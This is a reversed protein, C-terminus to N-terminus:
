MFKANRAVTMKGGGSAELKMKKHKVHGSAKVKGSLSLSTVWGTALDVVAPGTLDLKFTMDGNKLDGKLTVDLDAQKRQDGHIGKLTATVKTENEDIGPLEGILARRAEADPSLTAGPKKGQLLKALPSPSGVYGYEAMVADREKDPAPKGGRTVEPSSGQAEIEYTKNETVSPHELGLLPKADRRGFMLQLKTIADGKVAQAEETREEDISWRGSQIGASAGKHSLTLDFKMKVSRKELARTGVTPKPFSAAPAASGGAEAPGPATTAVTTTSGDSSENTPSKAGPAAASGHGCGIACASAFLVLLKSAKM